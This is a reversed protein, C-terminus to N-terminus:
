NGGLTKKVRYEVYAEDYRKEREEKPQLSSRAYRSIDISNYENVRLQELKKKAIGNMYIVFENDDSFCLGTRIASRYDYWHFLEHLICWRRERKDALLKIFITNKEGLFRGRTSNPLELDSIIVFAPPKEDKMGVIQLAEDIRMEYEHLLRPKVKTKDSVRINYRSGKLARDSVIMDDGMQYSIAETEVLPRYDMRPNDNGKEVKM